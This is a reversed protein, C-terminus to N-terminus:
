RSAARRGDALIVASPFEDRLGLRDLLELVDAFEAPTRPPVGPRPTGATARLPVQMPPTLVPTAHRGTQRQVEAECALWGYSALETTVNAPPTCTSTSASAGRGDGRRALLAVLLSMVACNGATHYAQNGGGRVPPLEHDDYGCCWVPGGGALM